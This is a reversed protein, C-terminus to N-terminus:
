SSLEYITPPFLVRGALTETIGHMLHFQQPGTLWFLGPQLAEDVAIKIASFLEPAYQIEDIILPTKHRRLFLAPDSQALARQEM